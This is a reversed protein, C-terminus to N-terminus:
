RGNKQAVRNAARSQKPKTTVRRSIARVFAAPEREIVTLLTAAAGRPQRQHQEWKRLGSLSTGLLPAFQEQTLKVRERLRKVDPASAAGPAAFKTERGIPKGEAHALAEAMSRVLEDGLSEEEPRPDTQRGM